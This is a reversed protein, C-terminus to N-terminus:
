ACVGPSGLAALAEALTAVGIVEISTAAHKAEEAQGAPALFVDAGSHEAGRVKQGIELVNGVRGDATISGTGSVARGAAIDAPTLEDVIAVAFLLGGSAGIVHGADIGARVDRGLCAAAAARANDKADAMLRPGDHIVKQMDGDAARVTEDDLAVTALVFRGDSGADPVAGEVDVSFGPAAQEAAEARAATAAAHRFVLLAAITLVLAFAVGIVIPAASREASFLSPPRRTAEDRRLEALADEFLQVDGAPRAPPRFAIQATKTPM